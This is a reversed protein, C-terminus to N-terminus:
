FCFRAFNWFAAVCLPGCHDSWGQLLIFSTVWEISWWVQALWWQKQSLVPPQKPQNSAKNLGKARSMDEVNTRTLSSSGRPTSIAYDHPIIHRAKYIHLTRILALASFYPLYNISTGPPLSVIVESTWNSFWSYCSPEKAYSLLWTFCAHM